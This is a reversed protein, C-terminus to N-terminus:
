KQERVDIIVLKNSTEQIKKLDPIAIREPTKQTM